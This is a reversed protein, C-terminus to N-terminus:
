AKKAPQRSKGKAKSAQTRVAKTGQSPEEKPAQQEWIVEARLWHDVDRGDCCGEEQWIGYAIVRIEDERAM